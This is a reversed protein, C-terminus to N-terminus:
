RKTRGAAAQCNGCEFWPEVMGTAPIRGELVALVGIARPIGVLKAMASRYGPGLPGWYEVLISSRKEVSGGAHKIDFIHQLVIMDRERPQYAMRTELLACFPVSRTLLHVADMLLRTILSDIWRLGSLVHDVDDKDTIFAEIKLARTIEPFGAYRLTGRFITHAEPIEYFDGFGVSDRSPCGVLNFMLFIRQPSAAAM